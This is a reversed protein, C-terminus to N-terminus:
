NWELSGDLAVGQDDNPTRTTRLYSVRSRLRVFEPQVGLVIRDPCATEPGIGADVLSYLSEPGIGAVAHSRSVQGVHDDSIGLTIHGNLHVALESATKPARLDIAPRTLHM